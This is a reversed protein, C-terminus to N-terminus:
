LALNVNTLMNDWQKEFLPLKKTLLVELMCLDVEDCLKQFPQNISVIQVYFSFFDNYIVDNKNVYM